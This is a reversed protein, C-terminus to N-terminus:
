QKEIPIKKWEMKFESEEKEGIAKCFDDDYLIPWADQIVWSLCDQQAKEKNAMRFVYHDQGHFACIYADLKIVFRELTFIWNKLKFAAYIEYNPSGYNLKGYQFKSISSEMWGEPIFEYKFPISKSFTVALNKIINDATETM